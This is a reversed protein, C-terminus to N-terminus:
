DLSEATKDAVAKSRPIFLSLMVSVGIVAVIIGLSLSIPFKGDYLGNLWAMKLGVFILVLALGYKLLHFKDVAGALLFYMSRLGLIAFVNSTFVILPEGTVAFIAPVSDVAFIIDTAEVFLLAIFLPTAWLAGKEIVFFRQGRMESTVPMLKKFSRILLNKEPRIEKDPVALMKIGTLILFAGFLIIVWHYRMLASGAAIFAARFLLAGLIGYFLVRHQYVAPIAFYGFVVVFVFINDVSLAKEIIYGTLFELSVQRAAEQPDFGAMSMLRADQPFKWAAYRYFLYNFALSLAVWAISWGAAERFSVAHARRHFVGLDLALMMLVFLTFATYFWWYDSFPFLDTQMGKLELHSLDPLAIFAASGSIPLRDISTSFIASSAEENELDGTMAAAAIMREIDADAMTRTTSITIMEAIM